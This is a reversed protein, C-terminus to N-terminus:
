PLQVQVCLLFIVFSFATVGYFVCRKNEDVRACVCVRECLCAFKDANKIHDTASFCRRPQRLTRRPLVSFCVGFIEIFEFHFGIENLIPQHTRVHTYTRHPAHIYKKMFSSFIDPMFVTQSDEKQVHDRRDRM